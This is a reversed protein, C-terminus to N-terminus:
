EGDEEEETEEEVPEQKKRPGQIRRLKEVSDRRITLKGLLPHTANINDGEFVCDSVGLSGRGFFGLVLPSRKPAAEKDDQPREFFLTSISDLPAAVPDPSHPHKYFLTPVGNEDRVNLIRMKGRDSSRTIIVDSTEDGRPEARHRDSSPEWERVEINEVFQSDDGSLNSRFMVGQGTPAIDLSDQCKEVLEGNLYVHVIALKRDVRLEVDVQSSPFDSPERPISAMQIFSGRDNSHQRKLEFGSGNFTLYYRDAKGTTELTDDAFYIQINPTNRWSLKFRLAFSGPIDFNRALTGSGDAMFRKNDFHWGNKLSWGNESDPGKYIVKRPRVGLQVMNVATRPVDLTGAFSTDIQLSEEDLGRLDCPIEDGNSLVVLADHEDKPKTTRAFEVLRIFDARLQFPEFSLPSELSVQGDNALAAVTGSLRSGDALTVDDATATAILALSLAIRFMFPASPKEISRDFTM